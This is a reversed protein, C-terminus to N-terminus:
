QGVLTVIFNSSDGSVSTPTTGVGARIGITDGYNLSVLGAIICRNDEATLQTKPSDLIGNKAVQFVKTAIGTQMLIYASVFYIGTQQVTIGTYNSGAAVFSINSSGTQQSFAIYDGSFGVPITSAYSTIVIGNEGTAGTAGTAGTGRLDNGAVGTNGTAGTAGTPGTNGTNGTVGVAGTNGTAGTAGTNGTAGTAGVSGAPATGASGTNGTPGTVGSKINGTIGSNGTPGTNGTAGTAGTNGTAGTPGTLGTQGTAGAAGTAGVPGQSPLLDYTYGFLLCFIIHKRIM